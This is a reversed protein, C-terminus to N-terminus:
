IKVDPCATDYEDVSLTQFNQGRVTKSYLPKNCEKIRWTLMIQFDIMSNVIRQPVLSILHYVGNQEGTIIYVSYSYIVSFFYSIRIFTKRIFINLLILKLAFLM